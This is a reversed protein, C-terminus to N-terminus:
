NFHSDDMVSCIHGDNLMNRTEEKVEELTFRGGLHKHVDYATLGNKTNLGMNRVVHLIAAQLTPPIPGSSVRSAGAASAAGQLPRAPAPKTLRLHVHVAELLHYTLENHDVVDKFQGTVQPRDDHMKVSGFVRVFGGVKWEPGPAEGADLWKKCTVSGTGDSAVCTFMKAVGAMGLPEVSVIRGVVTVQGVERGDIIVAGDGVRQADYLMKMTVPRLAAHNRDNSVNKAPSAGPGDFGVAQSMM